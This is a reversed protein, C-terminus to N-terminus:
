IKKFVYYEKEAEDCGDFGKGGSKEVLVFGRASSLVSESPHYKQTQYETSRYYSGDPGSAFLDITFECLSEDKDFASRWVAMDEGVEYVYSMGDYINKYRYETNIDFVFVGGPELYNHVLSFVKDLDGHETLYNLCDFSSYVAQVTGYLEFERMDQCLLLTNKGYNKERAINLMEPSIDLAVMDYGRDALLSAIGGTGCGMDLVERVPIDAKKFCKELFDAYPLYANGNIHDYLEAVSYLSM